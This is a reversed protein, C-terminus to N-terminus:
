MCTLDVVLMGSVICCTPNQCVPERLSYLRWPHICQLTETKFKVPKLSLEQSSSSVQHSLLQVHHLVPAPLSLPWEYPLQLQKSSTPAAHAICDQCAWMGATEGVTQCNMGVHKFCWCTLSWATLLFASLSPKCCRKASICATAQPGICAETSAAFAKSSAARILTDKSFAEGYPSPSRASPRQLPHSLMWRWCVWLTLM